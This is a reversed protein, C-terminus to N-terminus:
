QKHDYNHNVAAFFAITVAGQIHFTCYSGKMEVQRCSNSEGLLCFYLRIEPQSSHSIGFLYAPRSLIESSKSSFCVHGMVKEVKIEGFVRSIIFFLYHKM